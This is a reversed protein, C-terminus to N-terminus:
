NELCFSLVMKKFSSIREFGSMCRQGGREVLARRGNVSRDVECIQWM